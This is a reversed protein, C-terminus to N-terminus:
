NGGTGAPSAEVTSHKPLRDPQPIAAAQEGSGYKVLGRRAYKRHLRREICYQGSWAMKHIYGTEWKRCGEAELPPM